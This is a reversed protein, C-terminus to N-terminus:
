VLFPEKSIIVDEDTGAKNRLMSVQNDSMEAVIEGKMKDRSTITIKNDLLFKIVKDYDDPTM